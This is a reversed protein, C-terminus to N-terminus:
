RPTELLALVEDQEGAHSRTRALEKELQEKQARESRAEARHKHERFWEWTFGIALGVAISLLIVVFLPLAIGDGFGLYRGVDEPVLRLTVIGRNAIALILLCFALLGLLLYRLFTM